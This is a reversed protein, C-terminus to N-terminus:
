PDRVEDLVVMLKCGVNEYLWLSNASHASGFCAAVLLRLVSRSRLRRVCDFRMPGHRLLALVIRLVSSVLVPRMPHTAGQAHPISSSTQFSHDPPDDFHSSNETSGPGGGQGSGLARIIHGPRRDADIQVWGVADEDENDSASGAADGARFSSGERLPDLFGSNLFQRVLLARGSVSTGAVASRHAAAAAADDDHDHGAHKLTSSLATSRTQLFRQVAAPLSHTNFTLISVDIPATLAEDVGGADDAAGAADTSKLTDNTAILRVVQELGGAQAFMFHQNERESRQRRFIAALREAACLASWREEHLRSTERDPAGAPATDAKAPGQQAPRPAFWGGRRTSTANQNSDSRRSEYTGSGAAASARAYSVLFNECLVGVGAGLVPWGGQGACRPSFWYASLTTETGIDNEQWPEIGVGSRSKPVPEFPKAASGNDVRAHSASSSLSSPAFVSAVTPVACETMAQLYSQMRVQFFQWNEAYLEYGMVPALRAALDLLPSTAAAVVSHRSPSATTDAGGGSGGSSDAAQGFIDLLTQVGADCQVGALLTAIQTLIRTAVVWAGASVSVHGASSHLQDSHMLCVLLSTVDSGLYVAELLTPVQGTTM